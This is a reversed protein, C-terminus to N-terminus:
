CGLEEFPYHFEKRATCAQMTKTKKEKQHSKKNQHNNYPLHKDISLNNSKQNHTYHYNGKHILQPENFFSFYIWFLHCFIM